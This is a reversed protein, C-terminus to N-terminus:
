VVSKRDSSQDVTFRYLPGPSPTGDSDGDLYSDVRWYYTGDTTANVTAASRNAAGDVIKVFDSDPDSGFWLDVWVDEGADPERNTWILEVSGADVVAGNQPSAYGPMGVSVASLDLHFVRDDWSTSISGDGVGLGSGSQYRTGGSYLNETTNIYPIGTTWSTTTGTLGVDVGFETEPALLVPSDFTWTMYEGGNWTFDQRFSETHIESFVSGYVSGVRVAYQKVPAAGHDANVQYTVAHLLVPNEGTTFTQGKATGTAGSEYWWKETGSSVHLNAIDEGDVVPM